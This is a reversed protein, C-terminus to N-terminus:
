TTRWRWWLAVCRVKALGRVPVPGPWTLDAPRRQDDRQDVGPGQLGGPGTAHGDAAALRRGGPQRGRSARLPGTEGRQGQAPLLAYAAPRRRRSRRWSSSAATWSTSKSAGSAAPGAEADAPRRRDTGLNSVEVGVIARSETDSALQVNYAPRLRRRADEDEPGRRRDAVGAAAPREEEAAGQRSSRRWSPSPRVRRRGRPGCAGPRGPTSRNDNEPEDAQKEMMEVQAQAAGLAAGDEAGSSAATARRQRAGAHRGPRHPPRGRSWARHADGAGAHVPEDARRTAPGLTASPTTTSAWGAASGATPTTSGASGSSSGPAPSARPRRGSGSPWWCGRTRRRGARRREGAVSPTSSRALDWTQVLQWVLRADHDDDLLEDLSCPRM